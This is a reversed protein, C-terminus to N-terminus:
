ICHQENIHPQCFYIHSVHRDNDNINYETELEGITIPVCSCMRKAGRGGM